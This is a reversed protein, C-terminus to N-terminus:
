LEAMPDILPMILMRSNDKKDRTGPRRPMQNQDDFLNPSVGM